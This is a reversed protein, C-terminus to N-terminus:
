TRMKEPWLNCKREKKKKLWNNSVKDYTNCTSRSTPAKKIKIKKNKPFLQKLLLLSASTKTQRAHNHELEQTFITSIVFNFNQWEVHLQITIFSVTITDICKKWCMQLHRHKAQLNWSQSPTELLIVKRFYLMIM